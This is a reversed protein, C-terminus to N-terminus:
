VVLSEEPCTLVTEDEEKIMETTLYVNPLVNNVYYRAGAIKGEYFVKDVANAGALKQKAVLAQSLLCEAVQVHACVFLARVAYLPIFQRKTDMQSYWSNYINLVEEMCQYARALKAMEKEFGKAKLNGDIFDKITAMWALFPKGENMRMKRNILDQAHIYTTGEWITLIKSDRMLQEIPYEQTYGVGGLVQMAQAIVGLTVESGYGKVLPTLIEAFEGCTKAKEKDSSNAQIDLNYFGRFTMARVGEVHSKMDLLMRRIDEHKIIPVREAKRLGFPRGQIRETAFRSAYYYAAAAQTNSNHGTGIRSENMMHFMMSLGKSMGKEDPPNGVLIGYCEDEDGFNLLATAHAKLGMKHEIGVTTVDNPKGLTGNDNVWIKPVIYLGIGPSGPAAQPPRALVMHITNECHGQDGCTIFMKTGKIRYIRPDDTPFSKSIMDGADSGYNPETICMTGQWEGSFLKPLFMEKDKETGFRLILNAVGSTLKVASMLATCAACNVEFLAKYMILPMGTDVIICESSSAWGNQQLFQYAEKFGPTPTTIGNEFKIGIKDGPVNIPSIVERAVKYGENLLMDIDEMSFTDKFRDCAAVDQTPLWEKLIFQLDRIDYKFEM